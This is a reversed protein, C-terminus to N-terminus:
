KKWIYKLKSFLLFRISKITLFLSIEVFDIETLKIEWFSLTQERRLKPCANKFKARLKCLSDISVKFSWYTEFNRRFFNHSPFINDPTFKYNYHGVYLCVSIKKPKANYTNTDRISLTLFPYETENWTKVSQFHWQFLWECFKLFWNKFIKLWQNSIAWL